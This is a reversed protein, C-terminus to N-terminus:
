KLSLRREVEELVEILNVDELELEPLDFREKFYDDDRNIEELDTELTHPELHLYAFGGTKYVLMTPFAVGPRNYDIDELDDPLQKGFGLGLFCKEACIEVARDDYDVILKKM